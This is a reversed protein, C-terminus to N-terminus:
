VQRWKKRKTSSAQVSRYYRGLKRDKARRDALSAGNFAQERILKRYNALRREDLLGSKIASRLACGPEDDHQCDSFRCQEALKKIDAFAVNIGDECDALQLERMGPTDLLIGGAPILHLSRATTTHRGKSDDDRISATAQTERTLLTNILTSKGVGSSGLLAITKGAGCWPKLVMSAASDLANVAEVALFSDLTRVQIVVADPDPHCDAKTLVIVPEVKAEGALALYREIRNLNFDGNLSSVIFLTDINAAILQEAVRTGAAKRSFLSQRDLARQFHGDRNLMVWDGVTLPPINPTLPLIVEGQETIVKINSRHVSAVRGATQETWEELSLQQQFFPSWGLQALSFSNM